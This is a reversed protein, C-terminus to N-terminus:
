LREAYKSTITIWDGRVTKGRTGKENTDIIGYVTGKKLVEGDEAEKVHIPSVDDLREAMSKTFGAPMHQVLVM